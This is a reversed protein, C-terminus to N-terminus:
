KNACFSTLYGLNCEISFKKGPFPIHFYCFETALLISYLEGQEWRCGQTKFPCWFFRCETMYVLCHLSVVLVPLSSLM